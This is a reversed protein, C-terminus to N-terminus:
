YGGRNPTVQRRDGSTPAAPTPIPRDHPFLRDFREPDAMLDRYDQTFRDIEDPKLPEVLKTSMRVVMRRTEDFDADRFRDSNWSVSHCDQCRDALEAFRDWDEKSEGVTAMDDGYRESLEQSLRAQETLPFYAPSWRGMRHVMDTWQQEPRKEWTTHTSGHCRLCRTRLVHYPGTSRNEGLFAAILDADTDSIAGTKTKMRDVTSRWENPTKTFSLSLSRFHCGGCKAEFVARGPANSRSIQPSAAAFVLTMPLLTAVVATSLLARGVLPALGRRRSSRIGLVRRVLLVAGVALGPGALAPGIRLVDDVFPNIDRQWEIWHFGEVCVMLSLAVALPAVACLAPVLLAFGISVRIPQDLDHLPNKVGRPAVAYLLSAFAAVGLPIPGNRLAAHVFPVIEKPAAHQEYLNMVLLEVDLGAMCLLPWLLARFLLAAALWILVHPARGNVGGLTSPPAPDPLVGPDPM